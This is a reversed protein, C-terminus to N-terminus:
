PFKLKGLEAWRPDVREQKCGCLGKNLDRGCQPCLGQCDERCYVRIPLELLIAERLRERLDVQQGGPDIIEVEETEELAELEEQSAQKRQFLIRLPAKVLARAVALCRCCEGEILGQIQGEVSFTELSRTLRLWVQLPQPFCLFSDHLDLEEATIAFSCSSIGEQFEDLVLVGVRNLASTGEPGSQAM